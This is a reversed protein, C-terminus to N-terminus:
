GVRSHRTDGEACTSRHHRNGTRTVLGAALSAYDSAIHAASELGMRRATSATVRGLGGGLYDRRRPVEAPHRVVSEMAADTSASRNGCTPFRSGRSLLTGLSLHQCLLGPSPQGSRM